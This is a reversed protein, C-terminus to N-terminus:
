RSASADEMSEEEHDEGPIEGEYMAGEQYAGVEPYDLEKKIDAEYKLIRSNAHLLKKSYRLNDSRLKHMEKSMGELDEQRRQEIHFFFMLVIVFLVMQVGFVVFLWNTRLPM